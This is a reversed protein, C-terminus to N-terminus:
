QIKNLVDVMGLPPAPRMKEKIIVSPESRQYAQKVAVGSVFGM